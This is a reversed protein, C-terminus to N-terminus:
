PDMLSESFVKHQCTFLSTLPHKIGGEIGKGLDPHLICICFHYPGASGELAMGVGRLQWMKHYPHQPTFSTRQISIFLTHNLLLCGNALEWWHSVKTQWAM